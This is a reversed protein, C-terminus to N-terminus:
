AHKTLGHVVMMTTWYSCTPSQYPNASTPWGTWRTTNFPVRHYWQAIPIEVVEDAWIGFAERVIPRLKPDNVPLLGAQDTLEDFRRNRFRAFRPTIEGVPRYFKSHYLLMTDEPDFISGGHGFLVLDTRGSYVVQLYDPRRSWAVDFGQRRFQEVVIPAMADLASASSLIATWRQGDKAWFGNGDKKYGAAAMLAASQKPDFRGIGKAKAEEAVDVVYDHLAKFDPFPTFSQEAAGEHFIDIIQKPNIAHMMATRVQKDQVKPSDFNFWVSSPWWDIYGYPPNRDTLTTIAPVDALLKKMIPVPAEVMWDIQGASLQQATQQQEGRPVTILRRPAPLKAFYTNPQDGWVGPKAGWWDDRRDLVM